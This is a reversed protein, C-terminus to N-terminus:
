KVVLCITNPNSSLVIDKIIWVVNKIEIRDGIKIDSNVIKNESYDIVFIKEDIVTRLEKFVEIKIM